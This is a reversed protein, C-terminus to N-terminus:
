KKPAKSATRTIEGGDYKKQTKPTTRDPDAASDVGAVPQSPATGATSTDKKETM